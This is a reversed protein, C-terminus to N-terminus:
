VKIADMPCVTSCKKESFQICSNCLDQSIFFHENTLPSLIRNDYVIKESPEFIANAPCVIKCAGCNICEETITVISNMRILLNM